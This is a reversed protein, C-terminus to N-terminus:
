HGNDGQMTSARQGIAEVSKASLLLAALEQRNAWSAYITLPPRDSRTIELQAMRTAADKTETM